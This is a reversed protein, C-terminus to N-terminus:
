RWWFSRRGGLIISLSLSIILGFTTGVQQRIWEDVWEFMGEVGRARSQVGGEICYILGKGERWDRRGEYTRNWM